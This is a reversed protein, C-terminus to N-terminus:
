QNISNNKLKTGPAHFGPIELTNKTLHQSAEFPRHSSPLGTCSEGLQQSLSTPKDQWEWKYCVWHCVDSPKRFFTVPDYLKGGPQRKRDPWQKAKKWVYVFSIYMKLPANSCWKKIPSQSIWWVLILTNLPEFSSLFLPLCSVERYCLDSGSSKERLTFIKIKGLWNSAEGTHSVALKLKRQRIM